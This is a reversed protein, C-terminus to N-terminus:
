ARKPRPKPQRLPRPKVPLNTFRPHTGEFIRTADGQWGGINRQIIANEVFTMDDQREHGEPAHALLVTRNPQSLRHQWKILRKQWGGMVRGLAQWRLTDAIMNQLIAWQRAPLTVVTFDHSHGIPM